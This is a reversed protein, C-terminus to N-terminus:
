HSDSGFEGFRAFAIKLLGVVVVAFLVLIVGLAAVQPVWGSGWFQWVITSIVVNKRTGLTLAMTVERYALMSIWIWSNFIGSAILPLVIRGLVRATSAGAVKGAEELERHVQIMVGNTTRTGYAIWSITHAIAIIIVTGYVPFYVRYALSLYALGVGLLISPIAHPLFAITDLSGRFSVQTRVVVWSVLVSLLMTATPVMIMLIATNIFPLADVFDFITLFNNLSIQGWAEASPLQLHPLLSAWLLVLFPIFVEMCLYLFAFALAAWKWNGLAIQRPRYGRGTIVTYKKGHQVLRVYFFALILGS